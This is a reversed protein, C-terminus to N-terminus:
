IPCCLRVLFQTTFCTITTHVADYLDKWSM